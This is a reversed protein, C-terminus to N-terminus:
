RGTPEIQTLMTEFYGVCWIFPARYPNESSPWNTWYYNDFIVMKTSSLLPIIPQDETAYKFYEIMNSKVKPDTSELTALEDIIADVRKPVKWRKDNGAVMREGVPKWFKSHQSRIRSWLDIGPGQTEAEHISVEFDGIQRIESFTADSITDPKADIGFKKWYSAVILAIRGYDGGRNTIKISFREGNPRYWKGDKKTFGENKLMKEAQKPDYKWWGIGWVDKPDGKIDFGKRKSYKEMSTAITSDWPKYGDELEFDMLWNEMPKIFEKTHISNPNTMIPTPKTIGNYVAIPLDHMNITLTLAWRVNKNDFPEKANNFVINRASPDNTWAYPYGTFWASAHKNNRQVITWPEVGRFVQADMHHGINALAVKSDEGYNALLVYKPKPEKGTMAYIFSKEVDKRKEFLWWYGGRDYDKLVYAGLTVPPFNKFSFPDENEWIHKPLMYVTTCQEVSLLSHFKPNKSKFKIYVETDSNKQIKAIFKKFVNHSPLGAHNMQQEISFIVDDSTFQVGDSWHLGDKIRIKMGMYDEDYIPPESSVGNRREGNEVDFYWLAASYLPGGSSPMYQKKCINFNKNDAIKKSHRTGWIVTDSRDIGKPLLSQANISNLSLLTMPLLLIMIIKSFNMTKEM